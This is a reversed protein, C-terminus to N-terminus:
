WITWYSYVVLNLGVILNNRLCCIWIYHRRCFCIPRHNDITSYSYVLWTAAYWHITACVAYGLIIVGCFLFPSSIVFHNLVFVIILEPKDLSSGTIIDASSKSSLSILALREALHIPVVKKHCYNLQSHSALGMALSSTSYLLARIFILSERELSAASLFSMDSVSFSRELFNIKTPCFDGVFDFARVSRRPYSISNLCSVIPINDFRFGSSRAHLRINHRTNILAESNLLKNFLKMILQRDPLNMDIANRKWTWFYWVRAKNEAILLCWIWCIHIQSIYNLRAIAAYPIPFSSSSFNQLLSLLPDNVYFIFVALIYLHSIIIEFNLSVLCFTSAFSLHYPHENQYWM